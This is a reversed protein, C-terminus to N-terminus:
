LEKPKWQIAVDKKNHALGVFIVKGTINVDYYNKEIQHIAEIALKELNKNKTYKFEFIYSTKNTKSALLIDYRGKGSEKNSTIHYDNQLWACMGLM